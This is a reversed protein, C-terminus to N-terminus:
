LHEVGCPTCPGDIKCNTSVTTSRVANDLRPPQATSSFLHLLPAIQALGEFIQLPLPREQAAVINPMQQFVVTNFHFRRQAAFCVHALAPAAHKILAQALFLRSANLMVDTGWVDLFFRPSFRKVFIQTKARLSHAFM